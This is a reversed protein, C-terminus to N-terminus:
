DRLGLAFAQVHVLYNRLANQKYVLYRPMIYAIPTGPPFYRTFRVFYRQDFGAAYKQYGQLRGAAMSLRRSVLPSFNAQGLQAALNPTGSAPALPLTPPTLKGGGASPPPALLLSPASGGPSTLLNPSFNNATSSGNQRNQLALRLEEGRRTLDANQGVADRYNNEYQLYEDWSVRDDGDTDRSWLFVVDPYYHKAMIFARDVQKGKAAYVWKPALSARTGREAHALEKLDLFGDKNRDIKDFQKRLQTADKDAAPKDDAAPLSSALLLLVWCCALYRLPSM